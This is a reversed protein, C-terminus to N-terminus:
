VSLGASLRAYVIDFIAADKSVFTLCDRGDGIYSEPRVWDLQRWFMDVIVQEPAGTEHIVFAGYNVFVMLRGPKPAHEPEFPNEGRTILLGLDAATDFLYWEDYGPSDLGDRQYFLADTVTLCPSYVVGSRLQWEATKQKETLRPNQSYNTTM